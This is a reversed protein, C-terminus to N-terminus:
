FQMFPYAKQLYTIKQELANLFQQHASSEPSFPIHQLGSQVEDVKKMIDIANDAIWSTKFHEWIYNVALKTPHIMDDKYFRYDRLEDMMIEYAPFYQLSGSDCCHHVASILHAKSRQNEVFGDKLHRVPSVTFLLEANQNILRIKSVIREIAARLEKGSLLMKTFEKQPVKHCNAVIADSQIHKYVWATGFTLIIHTATSLHEYSVKLRNNLVALLQQKDASSLNSHVEFCQWLDNHYFLDEEKFATKNAIRKILQEIAKPHFLIGFPNQLQQYKFYDFKEGINEAFCSGLLLLKSQYDIPRGSKAIPLKTQLKM